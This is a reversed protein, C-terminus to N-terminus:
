SHTANWIRSYDHYPYLDLLQPPPLLTHDSAQVWPNYRGWAKVIGQGVQM